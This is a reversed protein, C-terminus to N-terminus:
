CGCYPNSVVYAPSPCPKLQAIINATQAQQSAQLTLATNKDRLEQLQNATMMDVIRQTNMNGAEILDRTNLNASTIIECTNKSNEYRVGEIERSINCCCSAMQASIDAFARQAEFSASTVAGRTLEGQSTTNAIANNGLTSISNEINRIGSSLNQYDFQGAIFANEPISSNDNGGGFLGGNGRGFMLAVILFLIWESGGGMSGFGNAGSFGAPLVPMVSELNNM